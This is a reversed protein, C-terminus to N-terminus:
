TLAKEWTGSARYKRLETTNVTTVVASIITANWIGDEQDPRMRQASKVLVLSSTLLKLLSSKEQRVLSLM